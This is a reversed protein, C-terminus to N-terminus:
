DHRRIIFDGIDDTDFVQPGRVFDTFAVRRGPPVQFRLTPQAGAALKAQREAPALHLCTGAYRPPRGAALQAKRSLELELASCFCPYAAGAQELAAFF